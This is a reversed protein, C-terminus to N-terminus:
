MYTTIAWKSIGITNLFPGSNLLNVRCKEDSLGFIIVTLYHIELEINVFPFISANCDSFIWRDRENTDQNDLVNFCVCCKHDNRFMGIGVAGELRACIEISHGEQTGTDRNFM